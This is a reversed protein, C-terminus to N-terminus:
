ATEYPTKGSPPHNRAAEDSEWKSKVNPILLSSIAGLTVFIGAILAAWRAGQTIANNFVATIAAAVPTGQINPPVGVNVGGNIGSDLAKAIVTKLAPPIVTNAALDAQGTVSIQTVLVAGIVAVGFAAGIQRVTNNAGSGMGAKQWPISTLVTNALPGIALGVGAGYLIFVPYFSEVTSITTITQSLTFLSIAEFTMGATVVWKPGIRAAILGALPASFFTAVAFPLFAFGTDIASLGLVIQLYLSIIFIIGFEGMSVITVTLLGFRFGKFQFLSFDFLADKGSHERRVEMLAFLGVLALGVPIAVGSVSINTFPWVFGDLQFVDKPTFWGYTQGEILGLILSSLGATIVTVGLIDTKYNPSKFKTEEVVLMAGVLAVVGIPVNILFALRWSQYTTLYGGILPGLAAAAGAIAGWVGFAISRARGTFMTTLISLTSPSAMAAGFGQIVRGALMVTLDNSVGVIVSGIVFTSVGAMFIRRRGLQDSLRGWTLIFSGFVLAYISSIWELDKFSASFTSQISPLAINVITTDIVVIALSLGLIFLAVFERFAISTAGSHSTPEHMPLPADDESNRRLSRNMSSPM